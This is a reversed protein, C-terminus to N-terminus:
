ADRTSAVATACSKRPASTWIRPPRFSFCTGFKSASSSQACNIPAASRRAHVAPLEEGGGRPGREGRAERVDREGGAVIELVEDRPGVQPRWADGRAAGRR